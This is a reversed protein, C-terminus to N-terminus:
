CPSGMMLVLDSRRAAAIPASRAAHAPVALGAVVVVPVVLAEDIGLAVVAVVVVEGAVEVLAAGVV